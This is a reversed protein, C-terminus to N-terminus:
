RVYVSFNIDNWRNYKIHKGYKKRYETAREISVASNFVFTYKADRIGITKERKVEYKENLNFGFIDDTEVDSINLLWEFYRDNRVVVKDVLQNIISEELRECDFNIMEDLVENIRNLKTEFSKEVLELGGSLLEIEKSAEKIIANCDNIKTALEGKEMLNDAYLDTLRSIKQKNKEIRSALEQVKKSNDVGEDSFSDKIIEFAKIVAEKRYGWIDELIDKIMLELYWQSVTKMDCVGDLPLDNQLRYETDGNLRRNRCTYGKVPEGTEEDKRWKFQQYKSGCNCELLNMWKDNSVKNGRTKNGAYKTLRKAKLEAVKEFDEILIIPEYNGEIIVHKEKDNKVVIHELYDIVTTQMQRQSGTYTRNELIRSINSDDWKVIGSANKRKAKLLENRITRIGMGELYLKYIMRVTEAQEDDIAFTKGNRNYGLINGNGYLVKKASRAITQGNKVRKSLRQSEVQASKSMEILEIEGNPDFTSIHDSIFIVEIGLSKLEKTYKLMEYVNRGFRSVERTIILDFQRKKADEIMRLFNPRKKALLGTLGKDFYRHEKRVDWESHLKIQEDYWLVQNEFASIQAEHETSVRGYVAVRRGNVAKDAASM